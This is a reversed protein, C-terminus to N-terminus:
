SSYASVTGDIEAMQVSKSRNLAKLISKATTQSVPKKLDIRWIGFGLYKGLRLDNKLGAPVFEAGLIPRQPRQKRPDFPKKYTVLFSKVTEGQDSHEM